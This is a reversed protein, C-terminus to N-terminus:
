SYLQNPIYRYIKSRYKNEILYNESNFKKYDKGPISSELIGRSLQFIENVNPNPIAHYVCPTNMFNENHFRPGESRWSWALTKCNTAMAVLLAGSLSGVALSAHELLALHADMRIDQPIDILNFTDIPTEGQFCVQDPEGLIAVRVNLENSLTEILKIYNSKSWNKDERRFKRYRPFVAVIKKDTQFHKKVFARGRSSAKLYFFKQSKISIPHTVFSVVGNGSVREIGFNLGNYNNLKFPTFCKTTEPLKRKCDELFAQLHECININEPVSLVKKKSGVIFKSWSSNRKFNEPYTDEWYDSIYNRASIQLDLIEKPLFMFDDATPYFPERGPYTSVVKRYNKFENRCVENVWAHWHMFEWGFEGIWPGFFVTKM